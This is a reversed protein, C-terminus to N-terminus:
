ENFLEMQKELSKFYNIGKKIFNQQLNIFDEKTDFDLGTYEESYRKSKSEKFLILKIKILYNCDNKYIVKQLKYDDIKKIKIIKIM